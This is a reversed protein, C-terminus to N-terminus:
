NRSGIKGDSFKDVKKIVNVRDDVALLVDTQIYLIKKVM